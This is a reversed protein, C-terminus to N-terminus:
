FIAGGGFLDEPLNAFADGPGRLGLTVHWLFQMLEFLHEGILVDAIKGDKLGEEIVPRELLEERDRWNMPQIFLGGNIGREDVDSTIGVALDVAEDVDLVHLVEKLEM